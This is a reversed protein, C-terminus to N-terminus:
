FMGKKKNVFRRVSAQCERLDRELKVKDDDSAYTIEAEEKRSSFGDFWYDISVRNPSLKYTWTGSRYGGATYTDIVFEKFVIKSDQEIRALCDEVAQKTEAQTAM